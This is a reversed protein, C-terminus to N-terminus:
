GLAAQAARYSDLYDYWDYYQHAKDVLAQQDASLQKGAAQAFLADSKNKYMVLEHYM